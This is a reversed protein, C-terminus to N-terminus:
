VRAVRTERATSRELVVRPWGITVARVGRSFNAGAFRADEWWDFHGRLLSDDEVTVKVRTQPWPEHGVRFTRSLGRWKTFAVYRELLFEDISGRECPALNGTGGRAWRYLFSTNRDTVCGRMVPEGHKFDIRGLRYPLGFLLPGLWTAVRKPVWEVLFFIGPEGGHRVYTRVNLFEHNAFWRGVWNTAPGGFAFRLREQSFAVVSVYATGNRVDLPYPVGSQLRSPEIEYHLFLASMWAGWFLADVGPGYAGGENM